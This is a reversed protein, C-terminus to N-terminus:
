RDHHGHSISNVGGRSALPAPVRATTRAGAVVIDVQHPAHVEALTLDLRLLYGAPARVV